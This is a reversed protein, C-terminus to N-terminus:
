QPVALHSSDYWWQLIPNVHLIKNFHWLKRRKPSKADEEAPKINLGKNSEFVDIQVPFARFFAGFIIDYWIQM